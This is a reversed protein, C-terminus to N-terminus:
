ETLTPNMNMAHSPTLAIPSQSEQAHMLARFKTKSCAIVRSPCATVHVIISAQVRRRYEILRCRLFRISLNLRNIYLATCLVSMGGGLVRAYVGDGGMGGM